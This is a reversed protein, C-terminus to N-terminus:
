HEPSKKPQPPSAAAAKKEAGPRCNVTFEASQGKGPISSQMWALGALKIDPFDRQLLADRRLDDLLKDIERPLGQGKAIPASLKFSLSKKHKKKVMDLESVGDFSSMVISEPLRVSLDRTYATWRVSTELYERIAEIRSSLDKKEKELTDAKLKEMWKHRALDNRVKRHANEVAEYRVYMALSICGLLAMQMALDGIPLLQWFTPKAKLARSLDFAEDGQQYGLALGLAISAPDYGPGEFYQAAAGLSALFEPQNLTPALDPRGHILIADAVGLDGRFKAVLQISKSTSCVASAEGGVPLDFVRWSLPLDGAILVAVGQAAGLFIRVVTRAKRPGKWRSAALRVLAFPAPEMRHPRVECPTLAAILGALFKRRGAVLLMLPKKGPQAKIVDVQMEDVNVSSSRLIEHLITNPAVERDTMLVAKTAFFVRLTPLGISLTTPFARRGATLPRLHKVIIEDLNEPECPVTQSSLEVPGALSLAVRSITVERDGVYIGVSERLAIKELLRWLGGAM